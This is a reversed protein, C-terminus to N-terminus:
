LGKCTAYVQNIALNWKERITDFDLVPYIEKVPNGLKMKLMERVEEMNTSYDHLYKEIPKYTSNNHHNFGIMPMGIGMEEFMVLTYPSNSYYFAVDFQSLRDRYEKNDEIELIKFPIDGLFQELTYPVGTAGRVCETWRERAKRNVVAVKHVGGTWQTYKEPNIAFPIEMSHKIPWYSQEYCPEAAITLCGEWKQIDIVEEYVWYYVPDTAYLILPTKRDYTKIDDYPFTSIHVDPKWDKEELNFQKPFSHAEVVSVDHDKELIDRLHSVLGWHKGYIQVNM